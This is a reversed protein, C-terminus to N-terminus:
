KAARGDSKRIRVIAGGSPYGDSPENNVGRVATGFSALDIRM